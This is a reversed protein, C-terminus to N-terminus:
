SLIHEKKLAFQDDHYVKWKKKLEDTRANIEANNAVGIQSSVKINDYIDCHFYNKPLSDLIPTFKLDYGNLNHIIAEANTCALGYYNRKYQPNQNNVGFIRCFELNEFEFRICSLEFKKTKENEDFRFFNSKLSNNKPNINYESYIVRVIREEKSFDPLFIKVLYSVLPKPLM